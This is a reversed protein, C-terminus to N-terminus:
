FYDDYSTFAKSLGHHTYLMSTIGDFRFGDVRYEDLWYKCNSLLFHLVQPKQYDFCRSDWAHHYGRPGKHFFQYETGDFRGLGEVENRVAHSHVLDMLVTLGAGHATDILHKM